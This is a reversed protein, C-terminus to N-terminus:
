SPEVGETDEGMLGKGKEREGLCKTLSGKEGGYYDKKRVYRIQKRDRLPGERRILAKELLRTEGGGTRTGEKKTPKGGGNM